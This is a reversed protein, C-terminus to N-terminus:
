KGQMGYLMWPVAANSIGSSWANAAGVQGAARASGANTISQAIQGTLASGTQGANAAANQGRNAVDSLRSFINGQQVQYQNFANNWADQAFGQNFGMLDKQASGSLAGASSADANLVGQQGQQLQFQYGPSMKHFTDLTFPSLLSGYGGAPSSSAMPATGGGAGTYGAPGGGIGGNPGGGGAPTSTTSPRGGFATAGFDGGGLGAGVGPWGQPGPAGGGGLQLRAGPGSAGMGGLQGTWGGPMGGPMGGPQGGPQRLTSQANPDPGIGLLYDLQGQAGYGASMFPQQQRQTIDFEQKSIDASRNAAAAQTDAAGSAANAGIVSGVVSAGAVGVAVWAMTM